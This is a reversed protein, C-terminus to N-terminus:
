MVEVMHGALGGKFPRQDQSFAGTGIPQRYGIMVNLV